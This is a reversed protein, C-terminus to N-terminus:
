LGLQKRVFLEGTKTRWEELANYSDENMYGADMLTRAHTGIARISYSISAKQKKKDTIEAGQAKDSNKIKDM